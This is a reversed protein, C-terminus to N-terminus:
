HRWLVFALGGLLAWAVISLLLGFVLGRAPGLKDQVAAFFPIRTSTADSEAHPARVRSPKIASM